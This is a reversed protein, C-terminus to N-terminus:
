PLVEQCIGMKHNIARTTLCETPTPKQPLTKKSRLVMKSEDAVSQPFAPSMVTSIIGIIQPKSGIEIRGEASFGAKKEDETQKSAKTDNSLSFPGYSVKAHASWESSENVFDLESQSFNNYVNIEKAIILATPLLPFSGSKSGTLSGSCIGNKPVDRIYVNPYDLLGGNFWDRLIDVRAVKFQMGFEEIKSENQIKELDKKYQGSASGGWLGASFSAGFSSSVSSVDKHIHDETEKEHVTVTEWSLADLDTSWTAPAFKTVMGSATKNLQYEFIANSFISSPTFARYRTMTELAQDIQARGSAIWNKLATQAENQLDQIRNEDPHEKNCETLYANQADQYLKQKELYTNYASTYEGNVFLLKQADNYQQQLKEANPDDDPTVAGLIKQYELSVKKGSDVYNKSIAPIRDVMQNLLLSGNYTSPDMNEDITIGPLMLSLFKTSPENVDLSSPIMLNYLNAFIKEMLQGSDKKDMAM